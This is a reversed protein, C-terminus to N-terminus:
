QSIIEKMKKVVERVYDLSERYLKFAERNRNELNILSSKLEEINNAQEKVLLELKEIDM